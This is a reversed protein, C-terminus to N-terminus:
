KTEMSGISRLPAAELEGMMNDVITGLFDLTKKHEREHQICRPIVQQRQRSSPDLAAKVCDELTYGRHHRARLYYFQEDVTLERDLKTELQKIETEIEDHSPAHNARNTRIQQNLDGSLMWRGTTNNSYWDSVAQMAENVDTDMIERQWLKVTYLEFRANGHHANIQTLIQSTEELTLM